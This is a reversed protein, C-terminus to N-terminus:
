SDFFSLLFFFFALTTASKFSVGSTSALKSGSQTHPKKSLEGQQQNMQLATMLHEACKRKGASGKDYLDIGEQKMTSPPRVTKQAGDFIDLLAYYENLDMNPGPDLTKLRNFLNFADDEPTLGERGHLDMHRNLYELGKKRLDEFDDKSVPGHEEEATTMDIEGAATDQEQEAVRTTDSEKVEHDQSVCDKCLRKQGYGEESGPWPEGCCGHVHKFYAGCQHAGDAVDPCMPCKFTRKRLTRDSSTYLSWPQQEADHQEVSSVARKEDVSDTNQLNPSPTSEQADTNVLTPVDTTTVKAPEQVSNGNLPIPTPASELPDMNELTTVDTTTVKAPEQVSDVNLEM